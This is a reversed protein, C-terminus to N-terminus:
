RSLDPRLRPYPANKLLWVSEKAACIGKLGGRVDFIGLTSLDYTGRYHQKVEDSSVSFPPGDMASQDYEYSILLQPAKGTIEMMRATYLRRTAEPLAVLAARDYIADVRGLQERSLDFFDGVYVDLNPARYRELRDLQTIAPNVKLEAFLQEIAIKSLEVGAVAYGNALLWAIDLTKGCLPLFVRSGKALSLEDFHKVLLPNVANGHFATEGKEWREHWFDKDM